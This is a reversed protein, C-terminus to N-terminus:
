RRCFVEGRWDRVCHERRWEERRYEERIEHRRVWDGSPGRWYPGPPPAIGIPPAQIVIQASAVGPAALAMAAMAAALMFKRM